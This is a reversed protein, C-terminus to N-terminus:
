KTDGYLIEGTLIFGELGMVGALAFIELIEERSGGEAIANRIHIRLGPPYSHTLNCDIGICVFEREKRTLSGHQWSETSIGTFAADYDPMARAIADRDPNWFKRIALFREKAAILRPDDAAVGNTPRGTKKWEEDLVPVAAYVAHNALGAISILVDFIDAKTGGAALIRETHRRMVDVNLASASAHMAFYILEKQRASLHGPAFPSRWFADAVACYGPMEAKLADAVKPNSFVDDLRSLDFQEKM